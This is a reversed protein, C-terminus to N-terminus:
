SLGWLLLFAGVVGLVIAFAADAFKDRKYPGQVCGYRDSAFAETMTRPFRRVTTNM